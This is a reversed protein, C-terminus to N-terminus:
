EFQLNVNLKKTMELFKKHSLPGIVTDNKKKIIYYELVGSNKNEDVLPDRKAIIYKSNSHVDLVDGRIVVSKFVYENESKYIIAEQDPYGIDIAEYKPLFYYGGGLEWNNCSFVIFCMLLACVSLSKM